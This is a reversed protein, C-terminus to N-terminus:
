AEVSRWPAMSALSAQMQARRSAPAEWQARTRPDRLLTRGVRLAREDSPGAAAIRSAQALSRRLVPALQTLTYGEILGLHLYLARARLYVAARGDGSLSGVPVGYAEAAAALIAHPAATPAAARELDALPPRPAAARWALPGLLALAREVNAIGALSLGVYARQSSWRYDIAREVLPPRTRLPNEHVYCLLRLLEERGLVGFAEVPGRLLRGRLDHRQNFVRTYTALAAELRLRHDDVAGEAVIHVHTDMLCYALLAESLQEALLSLLRFRDDDDSVLRLDARAGATFHQVEM